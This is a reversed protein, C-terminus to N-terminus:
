SIPVLAPQRHQSDAPEPIRIELVGNSLSAQVQELKAEFPLPLRRYFSGHSREMRVYEEDKIQENVHTEGRIVLAGDQLEVQVDEKKVGPLDATIILTHDKEVVDTRPMVASAGRRPLPMMPFHFGPGFVRALDDLMDDFMRFPRLQRPQSNTDNAPAMSQESSTAM